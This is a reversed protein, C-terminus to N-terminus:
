SISKNRLFSRVDPPNEKALEQLFRSLALLHEDKTFNVHHKTVCFEPIVLHNENHEALKAETDDIIITNLPSYQPFARWVKNLNKKRLPKVFKFNKPDRPQEITDCEQQTWVFKLHHRGSTSIFLEEQQKQALQESPGLLVERCSLGYASAQKWLSNFDLLPKFTHHVMAFANKPRSSTWVAVDFNELLGELFSQVHPRFVVKSGHVTVHSSLHNKLVIPHSRFAKMEHEHTLRSLITGNLDLIILRRCEAM